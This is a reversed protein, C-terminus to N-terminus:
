FIESVKSKYVTYICRILQKQLHPTAARSVPVSDNVAYLSKSESSTLNFALSFGDLLSFTQRKDLMMKVM